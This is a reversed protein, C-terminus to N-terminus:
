KGDKGAFRMADPVLSVVLLVFLFENQLMANLSGAHCPNPIQLPTLVVFWGVTELLLLVGSCRGHSDGTGCLWAVFAPILYAGGYDHHTIFAMAAGVFLLRRYRTRAFVAAVVLVVALARTAWAFRGIRPLSTEGFFLFPVFTLLIASLAAVAIEQWPIRRPSSAIESLCLVGFLCPAIKLATAAGLSLAAVIRKARSESRYWFLFVCVFAFAWGSPNGRLLTCVCAPSMLIAVAAALRAWLGPLGRILLFVGMLQLAFISVVLRKEGCSLNWKSGRDGALAASAIYAIPPYCADRAQVKTPVYPVESEMTPLMFMRYDCLEDYPFIAVQRADPLFLLAAFLAASALLSVLLGRKVPSLGSLGTLSSEM